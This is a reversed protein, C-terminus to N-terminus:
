ASYHGDNELLLSPDDYCTQVRGLTESWDHHLTSFGLPFRECPPIVYDKWGGDNVIKGLPIGTVRLMRELESRSPDIRSSAEPKRAADPIVISKGSYPKIEFVETVRARKRCRKDTISIIEGTQGCCYRRGTIVQWHNRAVILYVRGASRLSVSDRLWQALTPWDYRYGSSWKPDEVKIKTPGIPTSSLNCATLAKRIAGTSTGAVMTKGTLHRILRAAEGTNMGTLISIAAPGCFRNKDSKVTTVPHINM